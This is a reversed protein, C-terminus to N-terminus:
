AVKHHFSELMQLMAPTVVWTECGFLLVSQAVAKYFHGKARPSLGDKTLIRALMAWRQQAKRLNYYLAPWDSNTNSIPRGLYKFTAASELTVDCIQFTVQHADYARQQDARRLARRTGSRCAETNYHRTNLSTSPM